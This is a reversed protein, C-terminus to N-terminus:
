DPEGYVVGHLEVRNVHRFAIALRATVEPARLFCSQFSSRNALLIRRAALRDQLSVNLYKFGAYRHDGIRPGFTMSADRPPLRRSM